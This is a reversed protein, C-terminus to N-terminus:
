AIKCRTLYTQKISKYEKHEKIKGSVNYNKGEELDQYATTNWILENKNEDVFKYVYHTEGYYSLHTEYTFYRELKLNMSIKEGVVGIYESIPKPTFKEQLSKILEGADERFSKIFTNKDEETVEDVNVIFSDYETEHNFHWGLNINFKAGKSKLEDKIAYTNGKVIWTNGNEDFGNKVLFNKNIEESKNRIKQLRKDALKQLYEPTYEKFTHEFIGTGGCKFCIGGQIFEYGRIYGTGGCRPCVNSSYYKTGNKDTKILREM